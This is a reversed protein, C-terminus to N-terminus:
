RVLDVRQSGRRDRLVLAMCPRRYDFLLEVERNM